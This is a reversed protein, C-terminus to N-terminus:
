RPPPCLELVTAFTWGVCVVAFSATVAFWAYGIRGLSRGAAPIAWLMGVITGLVSLYGLPLLALVPLSVFPGLLQAAGLQAAIWSLVVLLWGLVAGVGFFRVVAPAFGPKGEHDTTEM